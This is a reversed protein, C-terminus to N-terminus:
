GRGYAYVVSGGKILDILPKAIAPSVAPCGWSRGLRGQLAAFAQSVYAAGHIVIARALAHDNIGADLGDLRLSYGNRGLYSDETVFLGLSSMHTGEDNSFATAMTTGSGQGHAVLERRKVVGKVLDLVWLRPETSPRTYDILTLLAPKSVRGLEVARDYAALAADLAQVSPGNGSAVFTRVVELRSAAYAPSAVAVLLAAAALTRGLIKLAYEAGPIRKLIGYRAGSGLGAPAASL